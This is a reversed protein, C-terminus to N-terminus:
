AIDKRIRDLRQQAISRIPVDKLAIDSVITRLHALFYVNEERSERTLPKRQSAIPSLRIGAICQVLHVHADIVKM